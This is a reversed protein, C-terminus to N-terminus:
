GTLMRSATSTRDEECRGSTFMGAMRNFLKTVAKDDRSLTVPDVWQFIDPSQEQIM